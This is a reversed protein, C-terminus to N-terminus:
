NSEVEYDFNSYSRTTKTILDVNLTSVLMVTFKVSVSTESVVDYSIIEGTEPNFVCTVSTNLYKVDGVSITALGGLTETIDSFEENLSQKIVTAEPLGLSSVIMGDATPNVEDKFNIVVKCEGTAFVEYDVSKFKSTDEVSFKTPLNQKAGVTGLPYVNKTVNKEAMQEQLDKRQEATLSSALSGSLKVDSTETTNKLLYSPVIEHAKGVANSYAELIEKETKEPPTQSEAKFKVIKGVSFKLIELADTTNVKTDANVDAWFLNEGEILKKQVAHQLVSLADTSNIKSDSNVDGYKGGAASATFVCGTALVLSLLLSLVRSSMRKMKDNGKM